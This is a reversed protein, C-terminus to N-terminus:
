EEVVALLSVIWNTNSFLIWAGILAFQFPLAIQDIQIGQRRELWWYFWPSVLSMLTGVRVVPDNPAMAVFGIAPLLLLTLSYSGTQPLAVLSFVIIFCFAFLISSRSKQKIANIIALSTLLALIFLMMKGLWLPEIQQFPWLINSYSTYSQVGSIFNELWAPDWAFSSGILFTIMGGMGGVVKWRRALIAWLLVSGVIFTSLNPKVVTLTFVAGSLLDNKRVLWYLGFASGLLVLITTQGLMFAILPYRFILLVVTAWTLIDM